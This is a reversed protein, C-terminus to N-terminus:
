NLSQVAFGLESEFFAQLAEGTKQDVQILWRISPRHFEEVNQQINWAMELLYQWMYLNGQAFLQAGDTIGIGFRGADLWDFNSLEQGLINLSLEEGPFHVALALQELFDQPMPCRTGDIWLAMLGNEQFQAQARDQDASFFAFVDPAFRRQEIM